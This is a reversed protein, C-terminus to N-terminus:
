TVGVVSDVFVRDLWEKMQVNAGTPTQNALSGKVLKGPPKHTEKNVRAM